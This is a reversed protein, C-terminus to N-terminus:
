ISPDLKRQIVAEKQLETPQWPFPPVAQWIIVEADMHTQGFAQSVSIRHHGDRVFYADGVQILQVPPLPLGGLYAMAIGLWRERSTERLPHFAMDFDSVKGESGIISHIPVAQIGAYFSGRLTLAPKIANLDYLWQQGHMIKRRLRYLSGTRLASKFRQLAMNYLYASANAPSASGPTEFNQFPTIRNEFM